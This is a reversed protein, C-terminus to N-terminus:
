LSIRVQDILEEELKGADYVDVKNLDLTKQLEIDDVENHMIQIRNLIPM